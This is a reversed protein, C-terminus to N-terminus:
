TQTLHPLTALATVASIALGVTSVLTVIRARSPASASRAAFRFAVRLGVTAGILVLVTAVGAPLLNALRAILAALALTVGAAAVIALRRDRALSSAPTMPQSVASTM